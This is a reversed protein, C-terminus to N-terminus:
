NRTPSPRSLAEAFRAREDPPLSAAFAVLRRDMALRNEHELTRARRLKALAAEADFTEAGLGRMTERALERAERSRPGVTQALGAGQERWAAQSQPSLTRVALIIPNRPRQGPGSSAAAETTTPANTLRAGVFAGAVFVNLALSVFLAIWLAPRNM